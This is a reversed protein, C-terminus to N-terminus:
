ETCSVTRGDAGDGEATVSARSQYWHYKLVSRPRAPSSAFRWAM